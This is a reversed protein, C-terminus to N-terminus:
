LLKGQVEHEGLQVYDSEHSRQHCEMHDACCFIKSKPTYSYLLIPTCFYITSFDDYLFILRCNLWRTTPSHRPRSPTDPSTTSPSSTGSCAWPRTSPATDTTPATATRSCSTTRWCGRWRWRSRTQRRWAPRLLCASMYTNNSQIHFLSSHSYLSYLRSWVQLFHRTSGELIM